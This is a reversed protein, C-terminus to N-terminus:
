VLLPVTEIRETDAATQRADPPDRDLLVQRFISNPSDSDHSQRIVEPLRIM